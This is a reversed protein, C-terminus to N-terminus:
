TARTDEVTSSVPYTGPFIKPIITNYAPNAVTPLPIFVTILIPKRTLLFLFSPMRIFRRMGVEEAVRDQIMM